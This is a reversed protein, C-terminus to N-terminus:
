GHGAAEGSSFRLERRRHRHSGDVPGGGPAPAVELVGTRERMPQGAVLAGLDVGGDVRDDVPANIVDRDVAPVERQWLEALTERVDAVINQQAASAEDDQATKRDLAIGHFLRGGGEEDDARIEALRHRLVALTMDETVHLVEAAADVIRRRADILRRVLLGEM